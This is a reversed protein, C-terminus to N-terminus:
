QHIDRLGARGEGVVAAATGVDCVSHLCSVKGSLDAMGFLEAVHTRQMCM